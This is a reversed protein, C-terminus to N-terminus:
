TDIDGTEDPGRLKDILTSDADEPLM